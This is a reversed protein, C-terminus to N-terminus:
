VSKEAAAGIVHSNPGSGKDNPYNKLHFLVPLRAPHNRNLLLATLFLFLFYIATDKPCQHFDSAPASCYLGFIKITARPSM